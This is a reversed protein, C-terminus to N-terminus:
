VWDEGSLDVSKPLPPCWGTGVIFRHETGDIVGTTQVPAASAGGIGPEEARAFDIPDADPLLAWLAAHERVMREGRVRIYRAPDNIEDGARIRRAAEYAAILHCAAILAPQPENERTM